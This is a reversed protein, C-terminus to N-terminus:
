EFDLAEEVRKRPSVKKPKWARGSVPVLRPQEGIRTRHTTYVQRLAHTDNRAQVTELELYAIPAEAGQRVHELLKELTAEDLPVERFVIYPREKPREKAPEEAPPDAPPDAPPETTTAAPPDAPPDAPPATAAAAAARGAATATAPVTQAPAEAPTEEPVLSEVGAPTEPEDPAGSAIEDGENATEEAPAEAAAADATAQEEATDDGDGFFDDPDPDAPHPANVAAAPTSGEM